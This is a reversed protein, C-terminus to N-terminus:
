VGTSVIQFTMVSKLVGAVLEQKVEEVTVAEQSPEPEQVRTPDFGTVEPAETFIHSSEFSLTAAKYPQSGLELM